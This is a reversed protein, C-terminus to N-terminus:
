ADEGGGAGHPHSPFVRHPVGHAILDIPCEYTDELVQRSLGRGGHYHLRRNLCGVSKVRSSVVGMDHTVLMITMRENLRALLDYLSASVRTDVNATPEDLLLLRPEVALARAILARQRQGGSLEGMPQDALPLLQLEELTRDVVADDERSYRHFLRTRALRGMRVVDRVRVPFEPDFDIWQPVYGIHHRVERVACGDIAVTGAQPPLLGLLVKLLTSKGGGNPGIIGVFDLPQVTLSVDELIPRGGYGATLNRITVTAASM